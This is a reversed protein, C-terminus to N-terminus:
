CPFLFFIRRRIKLMAAESNSTSCVNLCRQLANDSIQKLTAEVSTSTIDFGTPSSVLVSEYM